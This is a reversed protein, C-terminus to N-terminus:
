KKRSMQKRVRSLTEPSVGLYSALMHQPVRQAISPYKHLFAIYREEASASLSELIRKDKASASKQIGERFATSFGPLKMMSQFSFQDQLLVDTDEIADIFYASPKGTMASELNGIWWDEPAFQLIHEKGKSDITYSRLCGNAVFVGFKAVEGERLLYEGKRFTKPLLLGQMYAFEEESFSASRECFARFRDFMTKLLHIQLRSHNGNL